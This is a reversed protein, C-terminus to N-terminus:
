KDEGDERENKDVVLPLVLPCALSILIYELLDTM